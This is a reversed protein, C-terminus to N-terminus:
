WGGESRDPPRGEPAPGTKICASYTQPHLGAIRLGVTWTKRFRNLSVSRGKCAFHDPFLRADLPKPFMPDSSGSVHDPGATRHAGKVEAQRRLTTPLVSGVIM